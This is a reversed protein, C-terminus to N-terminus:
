SEEEESFSAGCNRCFKDSEDCVAGCDGCVISKEQQQEILKKAEAVYEASVMLHVETTEGLHFPAPADIICEIGNHELFGKLLFAETEYGTSYAVEWSEKTM